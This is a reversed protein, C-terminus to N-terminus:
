FDIRLDELTDFEKSSLEIEFDLDRERTDILVLFFDILGIM